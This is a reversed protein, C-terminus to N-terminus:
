WQGVGSPHKPHFDPRTTGSEWDYAVQVFADPFESMIWEKAPGVFEAATSPTRAADLSWLGGAPLQNGIWADGRDRWAGNMVDWYVNIRLPHRTRKARRSTVFAQAGTFWGSELDYADGEVPRGYGETSLITRENRILWEVLCLLSAEAMGAGSLNWAPVFPKAPGPANQGIVPGPVLQLSQSRPQFTGGRQRVWDYVAGADLSGVQRETERIRQHSWELKIDLTQFLDALAAAVNAVSQDWDQLV